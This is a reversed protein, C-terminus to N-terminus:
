ADGALRDAACYRCRSAPERQAQHIDCLPENVLKLRQGPDPLAAWTGLFASVHVPPPTRCTRVAVDLLVQDSHRSILDELQSVADPRLNDFRLARLATVAQLKSQLIAISTPLEAAAAAADEAAAAAPTPDPRTPPVTVSSTVEAHTVGHSRRSERAKTRAKTQRDAAAQRDRTVQAKSPNYDLFDHIQYGGDVVEFFVVDLLRKVLARTGYQLAKEAPVFGDTLQRSSWTGCRVFLGAAENGARLTKPHDDFSDDMRFWTM